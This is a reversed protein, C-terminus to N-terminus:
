KQQEVHASNSLDKDPIIELDCLVFEKSKKTIVLVIGNTFAVMKVYLKLQREIRPEM